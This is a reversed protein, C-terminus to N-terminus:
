TQLSKPSPTDLAILCPAVHDVPEIQVVPAGRFKKDGEYEPDATELYAFITAIIVAVLAIALLTTFVDVRPKRYSGTM